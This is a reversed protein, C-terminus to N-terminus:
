RTWRLRVQRAAVGSLGRPVARLSVRRWVREVPALGAAGPSGRLARGAPWQDPAGKRSLRALDPLPQAAARVPQAGPRAARAAGRPIEAGDVGSARRQAHGARCLAGKEALMDMVRDLWGFDYQGEAPELRTWSFIGVTMANCHALKMLRMDEAWVEEPWQDPNYDGGHLMHPCKANIPPYRDTM